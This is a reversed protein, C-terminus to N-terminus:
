QCYFNLVGYTQQSTTNVLLIYYTDHQTGFSPYKTLYASAPGIVLTESESSPSFAAFYVGDSTKTTGINAGYLGLLRNYDAITPPNSPSGNTKKIVMDVNPFGQQETISFVLWKNVTTCDSALTGYYLMTQESALTWPQSVQFKQLQGQYGGGGGGGAAVTLGVNITQAAYGTPTVSIDGTYSGAALGSTNFTVLMPGTGSGPVSIFNGGSGVSATYAVANGCNDNVSVNQSSATSGQTISQVISLPSVSASSPTCPGGGACTGSVTISVDGNSNVQLAGLNLTGTCSIGGGSITVTQAMATSAFATALVIAFLVKLAKMNEEKFNIPM